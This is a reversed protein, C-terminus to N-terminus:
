AVGGAATAQPESAPSAPLLGITEPLGFCLNFCQVAQGAVAATDECELPQSCHPCIFDM